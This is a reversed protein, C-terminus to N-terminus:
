GGAADARLAAVVAQTTPVDVGLCEIAPRDGPPQILVEVGRKTVEVVVSLRSRSWAAAEAGVGAPGVPLLHVDTATVALMFRRPIDSPGLRTVTRSVARAVVGFVRNSGVMPTDFRRFMAAAEVAVGLRAAAM